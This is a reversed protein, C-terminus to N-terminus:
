NPTRMNSALPIGHQQMMQLRKHVRAQIESEQVGVEIRSLKQEEADLLNIQM